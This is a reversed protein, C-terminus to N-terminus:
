NASWGIKVASYIASDSGARAEGGLVEDVGAGTDNVCVVASGDLNEEEVVGVGVILDLLAVSNSLQHELPDHGGLDDLDLLQLLTDSSSTAKAARALVLPDLNRKRRRRKKKCLSCSIHYSLHHHPCLVACLPICYICGLHIPISHIEPYSFM